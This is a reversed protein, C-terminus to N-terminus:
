RRGPKFIGASVSLSSKFASSLLELRRWRVRRRNRFSSSASLSCGTPATLGVPSAASALVMINPPLWASMARITASALAALAAAVAGAAGGM